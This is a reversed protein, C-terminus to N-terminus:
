PLAEARAGRDGDRVVRCVGRDDSYLQFDTGNAADCGIISISDPVEPLDATTRGILHAGSLHWEFIARRWGAVARRQAM